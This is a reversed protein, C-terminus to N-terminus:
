NCVTCCPLPITPISFPACKRCETRLISYSSLRVDTSYFVDCCNLPPCIKQKFLPVNRLLMVKHLLSRKYCLIFISQFPCEENKYYQPTLVNHVVARHEVLKCQPLHLKTPRGTGAYLQNLEEFHSIARKLVKFPPIKYAVYPFLPSLLM